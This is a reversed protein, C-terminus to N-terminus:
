LQPRVQQDWLVAYEDADAANESNNRRVRRQSQTPQRGELMLREGSVCLICILCRTFCHNNNRLVCTMKRLLAKVCCLVTVVIAVFCLIALFFRMVPNYIKKYSRNCTYGYQEYNVLFFFCLGLMLPGFIVYLTYLFVSEMFTIGTEEFCVLLGSALLCLFSTIGIFSVFVLRTILPYFTCDFVIGQYRSICTNIQKAILSIEMTNVFLGFVVLMGICCLAGSDYNPM